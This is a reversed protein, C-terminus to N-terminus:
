CAMLVCPVCYSGDAYTTQVEASTVKAITKSRVIDDGQPKATGDGASMLLDGRAVTVGQSVRIVFDGTMACYFDKTYVDDDDDWCQFVGAVNVDGEVSSVKMRNLVDNFENGWECMEDLNSLVTGRQIEIRDANGSLQSWRSLHAGVLSVTGSSVSINGVETTGGDRFFRILNGDNGIRNIGLAFAQNLGINLRGRQTFQAGENNANNTQLPNVSTKIFVSPGGDSDSLTGGISMRTTGGINFPLTTSAEVAGDALGRLPIWANNGSNRIKLQNATTDAWFQYAYKEVMATDTTGSHNTFLAHFRANIDSRVAAGTGNDVTRDSAQAM